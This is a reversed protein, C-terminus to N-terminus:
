KRNPCPPEWMKNLTMPLINKRLLWVAPHEKGNKIHFPNKRVRRNFKFCNKPPSNCLSLFDIALNESIM